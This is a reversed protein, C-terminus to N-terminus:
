MEMGPFGSWRPDDDEKFIQCRADSGLSQGGFTYKLTSEGAYFTYGGKPSYSLRGLANKSNPLYAVDQVSLLSTDAAGNQKYTTTVSSVYKAVGQGTGDNADIASEEKTCENSAGHSGTNESAVATNADCAFCTATLDEVTAM